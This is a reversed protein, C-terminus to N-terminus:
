EAKKAIAAEYDRNKKHWKDVSSEWQTLKQKFWDSPSLDEIRTTTKKALVYNKVHEKCKADKTWNLKIEDFGEAKEPVSFRAFSKAFIGPTLDPTSAKVYSLKKEEEDLEAKPPETEEVEELVPEVEEEEEEEAPPEKGEAEAKKKAAEKKEAEQKKKLEKQKKAKEREAKAKKMEAVKKGM